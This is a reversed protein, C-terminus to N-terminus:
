FWSTSGVIFSYNSVRNTTIANKIEGKDVWNVLTTVDTSSNSSNRCSKIPTTLSPCIISTLFVYLNTFSSSIGSSFCDCVNWNSEFPIPNFRLLCAIFIWRDLGSHTRVESIAKKQFIPQFCISLLACMSKNKLSM